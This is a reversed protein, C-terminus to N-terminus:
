DVDTRVDFIGFVPLWVIIQVYSEFNSCVNIPIPLAARAAETAEGLYPSGYKEGPILLPLLLLLFLFLLLLLNYRTIKSM